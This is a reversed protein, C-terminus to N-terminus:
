ASGKRYIHHTTIHENRSTRFEVTIHGGSRARGSEGHWGTPRHSLMHNTLSLAINL